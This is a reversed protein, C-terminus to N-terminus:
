SGFQMGEEIKHGVVFASAEMRKSSQLQVEKLCLAGDATAVNIGKKDVSLVAGPEAEATDCPIIESDLIKLQKGKYQTFAGPWPLLGRILNNILVSSQNWDIGGLEKTLKSAITVDAENQKRLVHTDKAISDLIDLLFEAGINMMKARLSHATDKKEIDVEVQGLIDGADMKSNMVIATLGTKTEGNIVAWNIPAAGRYRPLLSGHINIPMKGPIDLISQPLIRGYAIVIFVDANLRKLEDSFVHGKVDNPQLCLLNKSLAFEKIPPLVVKMGRGKPRDPQTVCALIEHSSSFLKELHALAFDDSGFFVIKM